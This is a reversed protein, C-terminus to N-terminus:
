EYLERWGKIQFSTPPIGTFADNFFSWRNANPLDSM